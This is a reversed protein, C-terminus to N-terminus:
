KEQNKTALQKQMKNQMEAGAYNIIAQYDLQMEQALNKPIDVETQLLCYTYIRKVLLPMWKDALDVFVSTSTYEADTAPYNPQRQYYMVVTGIGSTIKSGVKFYLTNGMQTWIVDDTYSTHPFDTRGVSFFESPSVPICFGANSSHIAVVNDYRVNSLSATVTSLSKIVAVLVVDAGGSFDADTGFIVEYTASAGATVIRAIWKDWTNNVTDYISVTIISGVAFTGSSRVITNTSAVISTITNEDLLEQDASITLVTSSWYSPDASSNLLAVIESLALRYFMRGQEQMVRKQDVTKALERAASLVAYPTWVTSPVQAM